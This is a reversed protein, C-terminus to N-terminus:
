AGLGVDGGEMGELYARVDTMPIGREHNVTRAVDWSVGRGQAFTDRYKILTNSGDAALQRGLEAKDWLERAFPGGSSSGGGFRADVLDAIQRYSLTDGATYVVQSADAYGRPDLIIDATVRGIDGPTTLTITNEWGGLARATRAPLDVVGFDALFLFSMFLGTSVITWKTQEQARLRARVELQEDFLDQSSGAGIADYDMGYQWPFFRTVSGAALAAETIKLQTGAPAGMGTCSVVTDYGDFAAALESASAAEVDAAEFGVHLARLRQERQKKDPAASDLTSQRLLVSIKTHHHRRHPHAALAELVAMGLEGAGLVLIKRTM